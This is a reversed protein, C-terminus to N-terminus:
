TILLQLISDPYSDDDFTRFCSIAYLLYVALTRKM